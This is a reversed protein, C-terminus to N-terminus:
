SHLHSFDQVHAMLQCSEHIYIRCRYNKEKGGTIRYIRGDRCFNKGFLGILATSTDKDLYGILRNLTISYVYVSHPYLQNPTHVIQLADKEASQFLAGQFDAFREGRVERILPFHLGSKRLRRQYFLNKFFARIGMRFTYCIKKKRYLPCLFFEFFVPFFFNFFNGEFYQM